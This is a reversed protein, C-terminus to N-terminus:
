LEFGVITRGWFPGYPEGPQMTHEADSVRAYLGTAWWLKGFDLLLTPGVYGAPGLAFPRTPPAPNPLEVRMWAEAGVHLTPTIEYTAGLTPNLVVDKQPTAYYLEYEGWLNADVRLKGIRRQLLIKAELELETEGEVLEGYVGVDVPWAGPDAFVYRLRQKVGTVETMPATFTYGAPTPVYVVYLGLELRDTIGYEFETQFQTAGYWTPNGNADIAKVTAVDAYQEVELEGKGLTETTYTFPLPRPTARAPHVAVNAALVTAVFAAVRRPARAACCPGLAESVVRGTDARPKM